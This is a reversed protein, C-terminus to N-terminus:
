FLSQSGSNEYQKNAQSVQIFIERALDEQPKNRNRDPHVVICARQYAKRVQEPTMLDNLQITKWKADDWLVEHLTSLLARINQKKGEVWEEVKLKVPDETKLQEQRRMGALTGAGEGPAPKSLRPDGILDDFLSGSSGGASAAGPPQRASARRASQGLDSFSSASGHRQPPQAAQPQAAQPQTAQPQRASTWQASAASVNPPSAAASTQSQAQSTASPAMGMGWQGHPTPPSASGSATVAATAATFSSAFGTAATQSTRTPSSSPPLQFEAFPDSPQQPQQPQQQQQQPFLPSTGGMAFPVPMGGGAVAPQGPPVPQSMSVPSPVAPGSPQFFDGLSSSSAPKIPSLVSSSSDEFSQGLLDASSSSATPASPMSSGGPAAAATQTVSVAESSLVDPGLDFLSTSTSTSMPPAPNSDGASSNRSSIDVDGMLDVLSASSDSAVVPAADMVLLPGASKHPEEAIPEITSGSTDTRPSFPKADDLMDAEDDSLGVEREDSCGTSTRDSFTQTIAAFDSLAETAASDEFFCSQVCAAKAHSGASFGTWAFVKDMRAENELVKYDLRAAFGQEFKSSTRPIGDLEVRTFTASNGTLFGAHFQFQFMATSMPQGLLTYSHSVVIRVDSQVKVNLPLNVKVGRKAVQLRQEPDADLSEDETSLVLGGDVFVAVCPRCGTKQSNFVPVGLLTMSTLLVPANHPPGANVIDSVYGIYRLQSPSIVTKGGVMRKLTFMRAADVPSPFLQCYALYAAVATGTDSRGDECHMAVVNSRHELLFSHVTKCLTFLRELPPATGAPWGFQVVKIGKLKLPDYSKEGVNVILCRGKHAKELYLRLDSLGNRYASSLGEAPKSMAIVKPTIYTIDLDGADGGHKNTEKTSMSRLVQTSKNRAVAAISSASDMARSLFSGKSATDASVAAMDKLLPEASLDEPVAAFLPELRQLLGTASPRQSPDVKICIGILERFLDYPTADPLRFKANLISLKAADEFPHSGFCLYYLVCGLAWIDAKTDITRGMHMDLMEPTRSQPTTNREVEEEAQSIQAFTLQSPEIKSTTASGFDCLKISLPSQQALLLNEVKVDRHVVSPSLLHLFEVASCAQKFIRLVQISSLPRGRRQLVDGLHGGRCFETLVLYEVANSPAASPCTAAALLTIIHDHQSVKRLIKIERKIASTTDKDHALLRKVAFLDGSKQDECVYVVGYGGQALKSKVRLAWQQIQLTRGVFDPAAGAGSTTLLNKFFDM